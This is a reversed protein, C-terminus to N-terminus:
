GQRLTALLFQTPSGFDRRSPIEQCQRLMECNSAIWRFRNERAPRCACARYAATCCINYGKNHGARLAPWVLLTCIRSCERRCPTRTEGLARLCLGLTPWCHHFTEDTSPFGLSRHNRLLLLPPPDTKYGAHNREWSAPFQM